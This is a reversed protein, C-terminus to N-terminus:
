RRPAALSYRSAGAVGVESGVPAQSGVLQRLRLHGAAIILGATFWLTPAGLYSGSFMLMVIQYTALVGLTGLSDDQQKLRSYRVRLAGLASVGLMLGVVGGGLLLELFLNHPYVYPAMHDVFGFPGYGLGPRQDILALARSYVADRGSTGAWDVGSSSVYAFAREYGQSVATNPMALQLLLVSLIAILVILSASRLRSGVTRQRLLLQLVYVGILVVGGRGGSVVVAFVQVPLLVICVLRYTKHNAIAYRRVKGRDLLLHINLGFALASTYSLTQYTAGGIGRTALGGFAFGVVSGISAVSFLMMLPDLLRATQRWKGAAGTYLGVYFAPVAWVLFNRFMPSASSSDAGGDGVAFYAVGVLLPIMGAIWAALPYRRRNLVVGVVCVTLALLAVSLSYVVYVASSESGAYTYGAAAAAAFFVPSGLAALLTMVRTFPAFRVSQRLGSAMETEVSRFSKLRPGPAAERLSSNMSQGRLSTQM